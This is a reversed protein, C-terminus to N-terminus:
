NSVNTKIILESKEGLLKGENDYASVTLQKINQYANYNIVVRKIEYTDFGFSDDTYDGNNKTEFLIENMKFFVETRQVIRDTRVVNIFIMMAIGFVLMIIVMAIITEILTYASIRHKVKVM